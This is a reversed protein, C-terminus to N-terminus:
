PVLARLWELAETESTFLRTPILAKNFGMFFNGIARALPSTVLLAAASEVKATETGAFYKRAERSISRTGSLDILCPRRAGGIAASIKRIAEKAEELGIEADPKSRVRVIGHPDVVFVQASTELPASLEHSSAQTPAASPSPLQM